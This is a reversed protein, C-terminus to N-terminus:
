GNRHKYIAKQYLALMIFEPSNPILSVWIRQKKRMAGLIFFWFALTRETAEYLNTRIEM